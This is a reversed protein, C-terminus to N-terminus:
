VTIRKGNVKGREDEFKIIKSIPVNMEDSVLM